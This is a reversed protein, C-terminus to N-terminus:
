NGDVANVSLDFNSNTSNSSNATCKSGSTSGVSQYKNVLDQCVYSPINSLTIKMASSSGSGTPTAMVTSNPWPAVLEKTGKTGTQIFESSIAGTDILVSNSVSSYDPNSALYQTGAKIMEQVMRVNQSDLQERETSNFYKTAAITLVGAVALYLIIELISFGRQQKLRNLKMLIVM